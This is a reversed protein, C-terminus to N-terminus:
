FFTLIIVAKVSEFHPRLVDYAQVALTLLAAVNSEHEGHAQLGFIVSKMMSDAIESTM